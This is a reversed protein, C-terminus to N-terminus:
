RTAPVSNGHIETLKRLGPGVTHHKNEVPMSAEARTTGPPDPAESVAVSELDHCRLLVADLGSGAHGVGFSVPSGPRDQVRQVRQVAPRFDPLDAARSRHPECESHSSIGRPRCQGPFHRAERPHEVPDIGEDGLVPSAQGALGRPALRM